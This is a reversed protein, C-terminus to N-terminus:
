VRLVETAVIAVEGVAEALPVGGCLLGPPPQLHEERRYPGGAVAALFCGEVDGAGVVFAVHGVFAAVEEGVGEDDDIGIFVLRRQLFGM